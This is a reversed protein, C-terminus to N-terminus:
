QGPQTFLIDVVYVLTQNAPLPPTADPVGDPFADAPPIVLLVRSGVTQGLLGKRWGPILDSLLGTEPAAGYSSELTQGTAYNLGLYNVTVADTEKVASGTGKILPQVVLSTPATGGVPVTVTPVGNTDTVTPLGAAPQVPSGQPGTLVASVIDVVFVLNDGLQIDAEPAGGSADYGDAGTMMILMRTGVKQQVLGKTFGAVVQDLSFYATAGRQWSSDFVQGTRANVGHYNVEVMTAADAILAGAGPVLTKFQTENVKIPWAASVTPAEGFAGTVQVPDLNSIVTAPPASTSAAGSPPVSSVAASSPLASTSGQSSTADNTSCATVGLMLGATLFGVLLRRTM